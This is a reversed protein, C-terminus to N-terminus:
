VSFIKSIEQLEKSMCKKPVYKVDIQVKDGLYEGSVWENPKSEKKKSPTKKYIGLRQM